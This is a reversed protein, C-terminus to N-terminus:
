SRPHNMPRDVTNSAIMKPMLEDFGASYLRSSLATSGDKALAASVFRRTTFL